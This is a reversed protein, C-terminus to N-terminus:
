APFVYAGLCMCDRECTNSWFCVRVHIFACAVIWKIWAYHLLAETNVSWTILVNIPLKWRACRVCASVCVYACEYIDCCILWMPHLEDAGMSYSTYRWLHNILHLVMLHPWKIHHTHTHTHGEERKHVCVRVFLFVCVPRQGLHLLTRPASRSHAM